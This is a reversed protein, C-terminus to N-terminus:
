QGPSGAGQGRGQGQGQSLGPGNRPQSSAGALARRLSRELRGAFARREEPTMETIAELVIERGIDTRANLRQKQREIVQALAEADFPDARMLALMEDLEAVLARRGDNLTGAEARIRRAIQRRAKPPFANMFPGLGLDRLLRADTRVPEAPKATNAPPPPPTLRAGLFMGAVLLNLSLSVGLAIQMWRRVPLGRGGGAATTGSTGAAKDRTDAM